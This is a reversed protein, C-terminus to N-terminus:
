VCGFEFMETLEKGYGKLEQQCEGGRRGHVAILFIEVEDLCNFSAISGVLSTNGLDVADITFVACHHHIYYLLRWVKTVISFSGSPLKLVPSYFSTSQTLLKTCKM